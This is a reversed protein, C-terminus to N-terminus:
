EAPDRKVYKVKLLNHICIRFRKITMRLYLFKMFHCNLVVCAQIDLIMISCETLIIHM